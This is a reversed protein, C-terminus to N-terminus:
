RSFKRILENTTNFLYEFGFDGGNLQNIMSTPLDNTITDDCWALAMAICAVTDTDGGPAVSNTLVETLTRSNRWATIANRACDIAEVSAWETRDENWDIFSAPSDANRNLFEGLSDRPGVQHFLYHAALSIASGCYRSIDTNHTTSVQKRSWNKLMLVSPVFGLVASRMVAGSRSSSPVLRQMLDLADTSEELLKKMGSSYGDIPNEKYTTLWADFFEEADPLESSNSDLLLRALALMMQTDDTYKGNGLPLDPHAYFHLGDNDPWRSHDVFEFAAGYADGIAAYVLM